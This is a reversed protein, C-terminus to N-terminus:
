LNLTPKTYEWQMCLKLLPFSFVTPYISTYKYRKITFGYFRYMLILSFCFNLYWFLNFTHDPQICKAFDSQFLPSQLTHNHDLSISLFHFLLISLSHSDPNRMTFVFLCVAGEESSPLVPLQPKSFCRKFLKKKAKSKTISIM